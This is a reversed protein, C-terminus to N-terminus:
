DVFHFSAPMEALRPQNKDKQSLIIESKPLQWNISLMPDDWAIGRDCEPSYYDTVKYIVECRDELTVYGHAFGPPIWLQKWNEASLEVAVHDGYTPSGSRVDVAVDLIAGRACRVLKGQARPPLQFHLGRLVGRQSSKVHNDQVFVLGDAANSSFADARFTESFFGRPDSHKNPAILVVAPIALREFIM